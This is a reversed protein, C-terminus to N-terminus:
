VDNSTGSLALALLRQVPQSSSLPLLSDHSSILAALNIVAQDELIDDRFIPRSTVDSSVIYGRMAVAIGISDVGSLISAPLEKTQRREMETMHLVLYNTSVKFVSTTNRITESLAGGPM